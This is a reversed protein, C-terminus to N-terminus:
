NTIPGARLRTRSCAQLAHRKPFVIGVPNFSLCVRSELTSADMWEVEAASLQSEASSNQLFLHEAVELVENTELARPMGVSSEGSSNFFHLGLNSALNSAQLDVLRAAHLNTFFMICAFGFAFVALLPLLVSGTDSRVSTQIETHDRFKVTVLVLTSEESCKPRPECIVEASFGQVGLDEEILGLLAEPQSTPSLSVQRALTSAVLRSSLKGLYEQNLNQSVTLLPALFLSTLLVFELPASGADDSLKAHLM